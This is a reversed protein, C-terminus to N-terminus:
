ASPHTVYSISVPSGGNVPGVACAIMARTIVSSGRESVIWRFVIGGCTSAATRVASEFSGASRNAVAASNLSASLRGRRSSRPSAPRAHQASCTGRARSRTCQRDRRPHHREEREAGGRPGPALSGWALARGPLVDGEAIIQNRSGSERRQRERGVTGRQGYPVVHLVPPDPDLAAAVEVGDRQWAGLSSLQRHKRGVALPDRELGVPADPLDPGALAAGDGEGIGNGEIEAQAPRRPEVVAGQDVRARAEALQRPHARGAAGAGDDHTVGHQRAESEPVERRQGAARPTSKM